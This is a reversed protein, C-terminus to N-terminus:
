IFIKKLFDSKRESEHELWDRFYLDCHYICCARFGAAMHKVPAGQFSTLPCPWVSTPLLSRLPPIAPHPGPPLLQANMVQAEEVGGGGGWAVQLPLSWRLSMPDWEPGLRALPAASMRVRCVLFWSSSFNRTCGGRLEESCPKRTTKRTTKTSHEQGQTTQM